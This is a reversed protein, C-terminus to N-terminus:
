YIKKAWPDKFPRGKATICVVEDTLQAVKEEQGESVLSMVYHINQDTLAEGTNILSILAEIVKVALCVQEAEGTVKIDTGRLLISVGYTEEILKVNADFSGFLALTHEMREVNILQEIM